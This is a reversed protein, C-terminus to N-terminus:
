SESLHYLSETKSVLEDCKEIQYGMLNDVKANRKRSFANLWSKIKKARMYFVFYNNHKKTLVDGHEDTVVEGVQKALSAIENSILM